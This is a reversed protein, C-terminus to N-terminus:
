RKAKLYKKVNKYKRIESLKSMFKTQSKKLDVNIKFDLKKVLKQLEAVQFDSLESVKLTKSFGIRKLLYKIKTQGLGYVFTLGVIINKDDPIKTNLLLIM